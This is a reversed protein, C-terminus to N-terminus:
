ADFSVSLTGLAGFDVTKADGGKVPELKMAGTIIVDGPQLSEGAQQLTAAVHRVTARIEDSVASLDDTFEGLIVARHFVNGALVREVGIKPDGLDTVELAAACAAATGDAGIRVAIESELIPTGAFGDVAITAGDRLLTANTLYGVIPADVGLAEMAQPTNFGVKWGLRQAGNFYDTERAALMQAMGRTLREDM